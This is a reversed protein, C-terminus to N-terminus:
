VAEEKGTIPNFRVIPLGAKIASKVTHTTGGKSGGDWVAIVSSSHAVMWDDRIMNKYAQYEGECVIHVEKCRATLDRFAAQSFDPWGKEYGVVPLAMSVELGQDLAALAGWQDTGLAGGCLFTKAGESAKKAIAEALWQKVADATPNATWGGLRPPRHGTFMVDYRKDSELM